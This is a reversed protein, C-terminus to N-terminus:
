GVGAVHNFPYDPINKGVGLGLEYEEIDGVGGERGWGWGWFKM